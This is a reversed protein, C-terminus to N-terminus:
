LPLVEQLMRQAAIECYCEDIEILTCKRQLDKAARGTTGSGAFPDLITRAVNVGIIQKMLEVPKETPHLENKTKNAIIVDPIRKIFEHNEKAYFLIAEWQRGHEHYLDGGTWNNKVWVLVSKPKPM